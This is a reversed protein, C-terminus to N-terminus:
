TARRRAKAMTSKLPSATPRLFMKPAIRGNSLPFSMASLGDDFGLEIVDASSELRYFDYHRITFRAAEYSQQIAYTPSPVELDDAGCVSRILRRAFTTKGAGLEGHLAVVDGPRLKLALVQALAETEHQDRLEARWIPQNASITM